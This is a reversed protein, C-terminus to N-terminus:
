ESFYVLHRFKQEVRFDFIYFTFLERSETVLASDGLSARCLFPM